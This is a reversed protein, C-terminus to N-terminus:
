PCSFEERFEPLQPKTGVIRTAGRAERCLERVLAERYGFDGWWVPVLHRSRLTRASGDPWHATFLPLRSDRAYMQWGFRGVERTRYAVRLQVLPILIMLALFALFFGAAIRERMSWPQRTEM